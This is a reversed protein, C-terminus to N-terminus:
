MPLRAIQFSFYNDVATVISDSVKDRWVQSQLNRADQPNTVYALEILISPVKATKLVRFNAERDADPRMPTSASMFEIVSRAFMDTREKTVEVEREALDALIAKIARADNREVGSLEQNTLVTKVVESKASRQLAAATSDRLSYITAGRAHAGAYDAHVAIFLAAKNREAIERRGDLTIFVDKDRTMLVRYRGTSELKDRLVKSFALVVDKEVVGNKKAGTDHGGHGPDIVIVPKYSRAVIEEPRSAPRPLPPQVMLPRKAAAQAPLKGFPAPVLDVVLQHDRGHKQIESRRVIVPARVDIVVRAQGPASVGGRFSKVLGAGADEGGAPLRMKVDPLSIVVRNPNTLSLVEFDVPRDLLVVFRTPALQSAINPKASNASATSPLVSLLAACALLVTGLLVSWQTITDAADTRVRYM